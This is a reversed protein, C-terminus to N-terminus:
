NNRFSRDVLSSVVKEKQEEILCVNWETKEKRDVSCKERTWESREQEGEREREREGECEKMQDADNMEWWCKRRKLWIVVFVDIVREGFFRRQWPDGLKLFRRRGEDETMWCCSDVCRESMRNVRGENGAVTVMLQWFPRMAGVGKGSRSLPIRICSRCSIITM